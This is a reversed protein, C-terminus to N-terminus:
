IVRLLVDALETRDVEVIGCFQTILKCVLLIFKINNQSGTMFGLFRFIRSRNGYLVYLGVPRQKITEYDIVNVINLLLV